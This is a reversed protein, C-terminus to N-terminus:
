VLLNGNQYMLGDESIFDKIFHILQAIRKQPLTYDELMNMKLILVMQDLIILFMDWGDVVAVAAKNYM